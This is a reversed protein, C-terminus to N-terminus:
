RAILERVVRSDYLSEQGAVARRAMAETKTAYEATVSTYGGGNATIQASVRAAGTYAQADNAGTLAYPERPVTVIIDNNGTAQGLHLWPSQDAWTGAATGDILTGSGASRVWSINGANFPVVRVAGDGYLEVRPGFWGRQLTIFADFMGGASNAMRLHVVARESTAEVMRSRFLSSSGGVIFALRFQEAGASNDVVLVNRDTAWRVTVLGNRLSPMDTLTSSQDPGLIEFWAFPLDPQGARDVVQVAYLDPISPDREFSYLGGHPMEKLYRYGNERDIFVGGGIGDTHGTIPWHLATQPASTPFAGGFLKGLTDIPTTALRRDFAELRRAERHTRTTAVRYGEITLKWDAFTAGSGPSDEELEATSVIMWGDLDPDQAWAFYLGQLRAATNEVLARVQSRLLQGEEYGLLGGDEGHVPLVLRMPRARREGPRVVPGVTDLTDGLQEAVAERLTAFKLPGLTVDLVSM